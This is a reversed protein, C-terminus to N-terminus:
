FTRKVTGSITTGAPSKANTSTSKAPTLGVLVKIIFPTGVQPKGDPTKAFQKTVTFSLTLITTCLIFVCGRVM